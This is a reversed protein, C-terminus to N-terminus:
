RGKTPLPADNGPVPSDWGAMAHLEATTNVHPFPDTPVPLGLAACIPEWGDGPQWEVLRGAPVEARVADNHRVYAAMAAEPDHWVSTFRARLFDLYMALWADMGPPSPRDAVHLITQSASKWWVEPTDRVSLVVIADPYATSLERWFGSAPRDVAAEYGALL